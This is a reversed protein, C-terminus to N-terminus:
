GLLPMIHEREFAVHRRLGEFFGRLMYALADANVSDAKTAFQHLAESVEFGFDEDEWHEFRLRELSKALAGGSGVALVPFVMEEEFSHASQVIIPVHRALLLCEQVDVSRPLNDALNELRCSLDYQLRIHREFIAALNMYEVTGDRNNRGFNRLKPVPM